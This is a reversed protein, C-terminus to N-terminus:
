SEGGWPFLLYLEGFIPFRPIAQIAISKIAWGGPPRSSKEALPNLREIM